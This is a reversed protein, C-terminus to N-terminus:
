SGVVHSSASGNAYPMSSRSPGNTTRNPRGLSFNDGLRLMSNPLWWIERTVQCAVLFLTDYDPRYDLIALAWVPEGSELVFPILPDLQLMAM